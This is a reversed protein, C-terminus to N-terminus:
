TFINEEKEKLEEKNEFERFTLGSIQFTVARTKLNIFSMIFRTIGGSPTGSTLHFLIGVGSQKPLMLSPHSM